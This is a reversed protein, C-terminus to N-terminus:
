ADGNGYEFTLQEEAARARALAEAATAGAAVFYGLRDSSTRLERVADGPRAALAAEIIGPMTRAREFGEIKKLTGPPATIFHYAAGRACRPAFGGGTGCLIHAYAAMENVGCTQLAIPHPTAGGGCRLGIEFLANGGDPLTCLEVHAAGDRLGVAKAAEVALRKVRELAAGELSSPYIVSKDVRYPPPSKVKDSVMLAFGQGNQMLVEASHELGEYYQEVLVEPSDSFSSAFRYAGALDTDADIRRVGRSGGGVDDTPKCVAPFGIRRAAAIFEAESGALAVAPSPLGASRWAERMLKKSTAIRAAAPTPGRLGMAETILAAPLVARDHTAIIGRAKQARAFALGKDWDRFDFRGCADAVDFAPANPNGDAVAVRFGAEKLTVISPVTYVNGGLVLVTAAM